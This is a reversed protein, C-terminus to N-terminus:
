SQNCHWRVPYEAICVRKRGFLTTIHNNYLADQEHKLRLGICALRLHSHCPSIGLIAGPKVVEDETLM